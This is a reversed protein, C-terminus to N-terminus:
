MYPLDFEIDCLSKVANLHGAKQDQNSAFLLRIGGFLIFFCLTIKKLNM